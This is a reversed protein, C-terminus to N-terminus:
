DQLNVFLIVNQKKAPHRCVCFSIKLLLVHQLGLRAMKKMM